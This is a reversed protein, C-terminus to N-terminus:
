KILEAMSEALSEPLGDGYRVGWIEEFTELERIWQRVYNAYTRHWFIHRHAADALAQFTDAPYLSPLEGDAHYPVSEAGTKIAALQTLIELQDYETLKYHKGEHDIGTYIADTCDSNIVKMKVARVQGVDTWDSPPDIGRDRLNKDRLSVTRITVSM